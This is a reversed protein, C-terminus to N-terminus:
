IKEKLQQELRELRKTVAELTNRSELDKIRLEGELNKIRNKLRDVESEDVQGFPEGSSIIQLLPLAKQYEKKYAEVNRFSKDYELPDIKHGMLYEGVLYKAPSLSWQSRFVDRMEHLGKGTRHSKRKSFPEIIGLKRLHSNWYHRLSSKSMPTKYQSTFIAETSHPRHPLWNRIAEIADGGIFTYYPRDFKAGKRGPLDIKIVDPDGKLDEELKEWGHKNWYTFMDQDIAGQFMCLFIAHYVPNSSLVVKRIEELTLTGRVKPVDGRINFCPDRPLEARNHAFFSRIVTYRSSKTNKRGKCDLIYRQVLDLVEYKNVKDTQRQYEIFDDPTFSSFEGGNERVWNMWARFFSINVKATSPSLRSLWNEVGGYGKLQSM